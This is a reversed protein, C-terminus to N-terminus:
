LQNMLLQVHKADQRDCLYGQGTSSSCHVNRGAFRFDCHLQQTVLYQTRLWVM